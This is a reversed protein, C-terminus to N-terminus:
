GTEVTKTPGGVHATQKKEGPMEKGQFSRFYQKNEM